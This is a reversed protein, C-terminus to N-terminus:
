ISGVHREDELIFPTDSNRSRFDSVGQDHITVYGMPGFSLFINMRALKDSVRRDETPQVTDIFLCTEQSCIMVQNGKGAHDGTTDFALERNCHRSRM